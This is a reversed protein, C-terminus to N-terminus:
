EEPPRFHCTQQEENVQILLQSPGDGPDRAASPTGRRPLAQDCAVKVQAKRKDILMSQVSASLLVIVVVYLLLQRM